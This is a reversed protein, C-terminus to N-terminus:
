GARGGVIIGHERAAASLADPTRYHAEEHEDRAEPEGGAGRLLRGPPYTAVGALRDPLPTRNGHSGPSADPVRAIVM